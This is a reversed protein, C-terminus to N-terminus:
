SPKQAILVSMESDKIFSTLSNTQTLKVNKQKAEEQLQKEIEDKEKQSIDGYYSTIESIYSDKIKTVHLSFIIDQEGSLLTGGNLSSELIQPVYLIEDYETNENSKLNFSKINYEPKQLFDIEKDKKGEIEQLAENIDMINGELTYQLDARIFIVNYGLGELTKKSALTQLHNSMWFSVYNKRMENVQEENYEELKVGAKAEMYRLVETFEEHSYCPLIVLNGKVYFNNLTAEVEKGDKSTKITNSGDVRTLANGNKSSFDTYQIAKFITEQAQMMNPSNTFAGIYELDLVYHIFFNKMAENIDDKLVLNTGKDHLAKADDGLVLAFRFIVMESDESETTNNRTNPIHEPSVPLSFSEVNHNKKTQLTLSNLISLTHYYESNQPSFSDSDGLTNGTMFFPVRYFSIYNVNYTKLETLLISNMRAQMEEYDNDSKQRVTINDSKARAIVSINIINDQSM